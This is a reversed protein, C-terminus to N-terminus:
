RIKQESIEPNPNRLKALYSLRPRTNIEALMEYNRENKKLQSVHSNSDNINGFVIAGTPCAQQCATIIEGDRIERNELKSKGRAEVIRQICFTCKEMVGRFRVTVDPNQTMKVPEPIDNTYNFYNFRRVKYPCNNACYKTGVCRNYIMTNIGDPTHTTAAVPCVQECPATECHQCAVPQHVVEPQDTDGNFYRDIRIWSMERGELVRDKGVVPINNESQCAITCANCGVCSNLDIVMGWQNGQEFNQPSKWLSPSKPLEVMKQAFAPDKQYDLLSAERVLPRGMMSGHDQTSALSYKKNTKSTKVSSVFDYSSLSRLAFANVGVNNGVKGADTRGYGFVLSITYDTQGPVIWVPVELSNGYKEIKIVDNNKLQLEQATKASLLAANDWTLKTIPDSLEQLWANNSYRGDYLTPSVSFVLELNSATPIDAKSQETFAAAVRSSDIIIDLFSKPADLWIGDHLVKRWSKEYSLPSLLTQWTSRVLNYGTEEIGNNILHLLEINSHGNYLPAILPQTIALSGDTSRTDGWEELVHTQPIFLSSLKSTENFHTGLYVCHSLKSVAESFQRPAYYAPNGGLVILATINKEHIDKVLSVFNERQSIETDLIERFSLTNGVNQLSSNILAALAHVEKPQHRGAVVLSEGKHSLLDKALATIWKKDFSATDTRFNGEISLGQTKLEALLSLLFYKIQSRAVRYRNDAMSGTVSFNSEVVYLRNMSKTSPDRRGDIFARSHSVNDSETLLFDSDLSLIVKAKKFHYVPLSRTGSAAEIGAVINEDSVADYIVYTAQPFKERFEKVLRAKTPSSSEPSLIALGKGANSRFSSLINELSKKTDDWTKKEWAGTQNKELSDKARDPDYLNLIEGQLYANTGGLSSPHLTNGEIKTPRGEHSEVLIGYASSGWPISSAYYEPIGPVIHEPQIVYPIIKEVPRRCSVLGALALSSGMLTLFERRNVTLSTPDASPFEKEVFTQFEQTQALQELSRWYERNEEKVEAM